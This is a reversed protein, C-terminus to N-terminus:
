KCLEEIENDYFWKNIRKEGNWISYSIAVKGTDESSKLTYISFQTNPVLCEMEPANFVFDFDLDEILGITSKRSKEDSVSFAEDLVMLKFADPRAKSYKFNMASLMPLYIVMAKEGGSFVTKDTVESFKEGRKKHSIKLDFWKRYDFIEKLALEYSFTEKKEHAEKKMKEIRNLIYKKLEERDPIMLDENGSISKQLIEKMKKHNANLELEMKVKVPTNMQEMQESSHKIIESTEKIMEILSIGIEQSILTKLFKEMQFEILNETSKIKSTVLDMKNYLFDKGENNLELHIVFRNNLTSDDYNSNEVPIVDPSLKWKKLKVKIDSALLQAKNFLSILSLKFDSENNEWEEFVGELESISNIKYTKEEKNDFYIVKENIESLLYGMFLKKTKERFKLNDEANLVEEKERKVNEEYKGKNLVLEDRTNLVKELKKEYDELEKLKRKVEKDAILAEIQNKKQEKVYINTEVNKAKGSFTKIDEELRLKNSEYNNQIVVYNEFSSVNEIMKDLVIIYNNIKDHIEFYIDSTAKFSNEKCREIKKDNLAEFEVKTVDYEGKCEKFDRDYRKLIEKQNKITSIIDTIRNFKPFKKNEERLEEINNELINKDQQYEDKSIELHLIEKEKNEIKRKQEEQRRQLGLYIASEKNSVVSYGELAGNRFYGTDSIVYQSDKDTEDTSISNLFDTIVNKFEDEINELIFKDFKSNKKLTPALMLSPYIKLVEKAEEQQSYPIVLSDLLGSNKLQNELLITEKIDLNEKFDIGEYLSIYKIGKNELEKRCLIAEKTRDPISQTQSKLEKLEKTKLKIEKDLEKLNSVLEGIQKQFEEWKKRYSSERINEIYEQEEYTFKDYLNIKNEIEKLNGDSIKLYNNSESVEYYKDIFNRKEQKKQNELKDIELNISQLKKKIEEVKEELDSFKIKLIEYDKLLRATELIKDKYEVVEKKSLILKDKMTKSGVSEYENPSLHGAFKIEINQDNLERHLIGRQSKNKRKKDETKNIETMIQTVENKKKLINYNHEKLEKNLTRLDDKIINLKKEFEKNDQIEKAENLLDIQSKYSIINKELIDLNSLIDEYKKETKLYKDKIELLNKNAEKYENDKKIYEQYKNYLLAQNYINYLANLSFILKKDEQFEELIKKSEELEQFSSSLNEFKEDELTPLFNMIKGKIESIKTKGTYQSNRMQVNINCLDYFDQIDTFGFLEKNIAEAYERKDSYVCDKKLNLIKELEKFEYPKIKGDEKKYLNFDKGVRRGDKLIFANFKLNKSNKSSLVYQQGICITLYQETYRKKFEICIYGYEGSKGNIIQGENDRPKFYFDMERKEKNATADLRGRKDNGDLVFPFLQTLNSKGSGNTGIFFLKGDKFHFTENVFKWYNVVNMKKIVWRNEREIEINEM